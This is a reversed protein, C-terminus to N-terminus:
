PFMAQWAPGAYRNGLRRTQEAPSLWDARAVGNEPAIRSQLARRQEEGAESAPLLLLTQSRARAALDREAWDWITFGVALTTAWVLTLWFRAERLPLYM